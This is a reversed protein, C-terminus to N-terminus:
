QTSVTNSFTALFAYTGLLDWYITVSYIVIEMIHLHPKNQLHNKFVKFIFFSNPHIPKPYAQSLSIKSNSLLPGNTLVSLHMSPHVCTRRISDWEILEM